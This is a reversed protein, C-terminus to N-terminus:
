AALDAAAVKAPMPVQLKGDPRLFLTESIKVVIDRVADRDNESLSRLMGGTRATGHLFADFFADGSELEWIQHVDSIGINIFGASSLATQVTGNESFMFLNPGHPVGGAVAGAERIADYLVAYGRTHAIDQWCSFAFRGGPKLVRAVASIARSPQGLHLIGYNMVVADFTAGSLTELTQADDVHFDIDRDANLKHAREIMAPSFDIATVRAGEVDLAYALEGTGCAVDLVRKGEVPEIAEVMTPITQRTLPVFQRDYEDVALEWGSYEFEHFAKPDRAENM